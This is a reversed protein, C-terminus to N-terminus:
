RADRPKRRTRKAEEFFLPAEGELGLADSLRSLATRLVRLDKPPLKRLVTILKVQYPEPARLLIQAGKKTLTLASRRRDAEDVTRTVLGRATLRAVIISVSSADTLTRESLRRISAGPESSLERLVFLQAGTVGCSREVSYSASKIGHVLRRLEQLSLDAENGAESLQM